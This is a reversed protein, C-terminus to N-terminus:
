TIEEQAPFIVPILYLVLGLLLAASPSLVHGRPAM